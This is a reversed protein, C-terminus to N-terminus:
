EDSKNEPGYLIGQKELTPWAQKLFVLTAVREPDLCTRKDSVTLGASSFLRESAASSAPVALWKRAVQAILPLSKAKGRWWELPDKGVQLQALTKYLNLESTIRDDLYALEPDAGAEQTELQSENVDPNISDNGPFLHAKGSNSGEADSQSGEPEEDQEAGTDTSQDAAQPPKYQLLFVARMESKLDGFTALRVAETFCAMYKVRPDLLVALRTARPWDGEPWRQDFDCLLLQAAEAITADEDVQMATLQRRIQNIQFPVASRTIYQEGELVTQADALPKLMSVLLAIQSWQAESLQPMYKSRKHESPKRKRKPAPTSVATTTSTGSTAASGRGRGRGTGRGRSARGGGRGRPGASATAKGKNKGQPPVAAPPSTTDDDINIILQPLNASECEDAPPGVRNGETDLDVSGDDSSSYGSDTDDALQGIALAPGFTQSRTRANTKNRRAAVPLTPIATVIDLLALNDATIHKPSSPPVVATTREAAKTPGSTTAATTLQATSAPSPNSAPSIAATTILATKSKKSRQNAPAAHRSCLVNVARKNLLLQLLHRYTSAWRTKVDQLLRLVKLGMAKQEAKLEDGKLSSHKVAGVIKRTIALLDFVEDQDLLKKATLQLTHPVCAISDFPALRGAAVQNAANDAVMASVNGMPIGNRELMEVTKAAIADATHSGPFPTCELPLSVPSFDEDLYHVTLSLFAQTAASTWADETLAVMQGKLSELIGQRATHELVALEDVVERRTPVHLHASISRLMTKFAEHEVVSLPQYTLILWRVLLKAFDPARKVFVDM